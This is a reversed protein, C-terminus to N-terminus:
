RVMYGGRRPPGEGRELRGERRQAEVIDDSTYMCWLCVSVSTIYM